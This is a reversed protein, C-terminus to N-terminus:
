IVFMNFYISILINDNCIFLCRFLTLPMTKKIESYLSLPLFLNYEPQHVSDVQTNSCACRTLKFVKSRVYTSLLYNKHRTIRAFRSILSIRNTYMCINITIPVNVNSIVIIIYNKDHFQIAWM